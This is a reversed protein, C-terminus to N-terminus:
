RSARGACRGRDAGGPADRQARRGSPRREGGRSREADPEVVVIRGRALGNGCLAEIASVGKTGYGCVITHDQVTKRWRRVRWLHRTSETLIEVTTGVLLVLFVVRLPTIVFATLARASQSAPYIDGYGTTTLSVTSYYIADLPTLSGGAGDTYGDRDAYAILAVLLILLMAGTLRRVLTRLPHFRAGPLRLAPAGDTPTGPPVRRTM